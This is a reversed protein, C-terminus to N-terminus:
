TTPNCCFYGKEIFRQSTMNLHHKVAKGSAEDIEELSYVRYDNDSRYLDSTVYSDAIDAEIEKISNWDFHQYM